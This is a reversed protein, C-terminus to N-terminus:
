PRLMRERQRQSKMFRKLETADKRAIYYTGGVDTWSVHESFYEYEKQTLMNAVSDVNRATIEDHKFPKLSVIQCGPKLDLFMHLLQDNTAPLFAQNNVLVVDARKLVDLIEPDSTFDGRVLTVKGVDIGWLRARAPFELAQQEALDCPNRMQEIGWSDCGIELAAQLVVNGVGSGLDVFISEHNLGTQTFIKSVFRPLLEGYVNDTGNNYARLMEVKPSVPRSYTQELIRRVIDLDRGRNLCDRRALSQRITGDDVLSKLVTNFDEVTKVFAPIDHRVWAHKFRREFGTDPNKYQQALAPPFYFDVIHSITETIDEMPKYDKNESKKPWKLEFRERPCRITYQLEVTVFDDDEWPNKYNAAHKGSTADAGHAYQLEKAELQFAENAVVRRRPGGLSSASSVSSKVRKKKQLWGDSDSGGVESSSGGDEDESSFQVRDPTQSRRKTGRQDIARRAVSKPAPRSPARLSPTTSLKFRNTDRPRTPPVTANTAPETASVTRTIKVTRKTIAGSTARKSLDYNM